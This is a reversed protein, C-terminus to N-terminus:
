VRVKYGFRKSGEAGSVWLNVFDMTARAAVATLTFSKRIVVVLM